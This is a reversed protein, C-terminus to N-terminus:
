SSPTGLRALVREAADIGEAMAVAMSDVAFSGHRGVVELGAVRRAAALAADVRPRYGVVPVPHTGALRLVRADLVRAGRYPRLVALERAARAALAADDSSWLADGADCWYELAVVADGDEESMHRWARFDTVRGVAVSRDYAYAWSARAPPAGALRAYVLVTSRVPLSRMGDAVDPPVGPLARLLVGLPMSSVVADAAIEGSPTCVGTVRGDRVCLGIVPTALRVTGARAVEAAMREWVASLGGRPHLFGPAGAAPAAARAASAAGFLTSAFSADIETAPRGWLKEAYDRFLREYLPRGFGRVMWGEASRPEEGRAVAGRARAWALGAAARALALPGLTRALGRPSPPYDLVRGGLLVARRLPLRLADRGVLTEWLAVVRADGGSLIHSGLEVRRGWLEVSRALGGVQPAADLLEVAAGARVLTRAAALGAPGAGIVVVRPAGGDTRGM